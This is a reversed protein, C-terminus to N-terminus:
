WYNVTYKRKCKDEYLQRMEHQVLFYYFQDPFLKVYECLRHVNNQKPADICMEKKCSGRCDHWHCDADYWCPKGNTLKKHLQSELQMYRAHLAKVRNDVTLGFHDMSIKCIKVPDPKIMDLRLVYEYLTKFNLYKHPGGTRAEFPIRLHEAVYMSGCNGLITPFIAEDEFLKAMVYDNDNFLYWFDKIQTPQNEDIEHNILHKLANDELTVNYNVLLHMKIMHYLDASKPYVDDGNKDRWTLGDRKEMALQFDYVNGNREATFAFPLGNICNYNSFASAKNCIEKCLAGSTQNQSYSQCVNPIVDHELYTTCFLGFVGITIPVLLLLFLLCRYCNRLARTIRMFPYIM